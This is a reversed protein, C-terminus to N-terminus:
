QKPAPGAPPPTAPTGAADRKAKQQMQFEKAMQQVKPMVAMMRPMMVENMKEALVPQKDSFAQGLPSAYFAGLQQLEEKTFVDSYVRAMDNKMDAGTVASMMENMVKKQFEVVAERDVGPGGMQGMMKDVMAAQQKKAGAMTKDMMQEFNMANLVATADEITARTVTPANKVAADAVITLRSVKGDREVELVGSKADYSKLKYGDFTEGLGLFSSTKGAANVLVFRSEKGMTLTANFVPLADAARLSVACLLAFLIYRLNM